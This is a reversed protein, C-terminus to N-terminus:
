PHSASANWQVQLIPPPSGTLVLASPIPIKIAYIMLHLLILWVYRGNLFWPVLWSSSSSAYFLFCPCNKPPRYRSRCHGVFGVLCFVGLPLESRSPVGGGDRAHAISKPSWLEDDCWMTSTPLWGSLVLALFSTAELMLTIRCHLTSNTMQIVSGLSEELKGLYSHMAWKTPVVILATRNSVMLTGGATREALELYWDTSLVLLRGKWSSVSWSGSSVVFFYRWLLTTSIM